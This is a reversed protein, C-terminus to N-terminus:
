FLKQKLRKISRSTMCEAVGIHCAMKFM